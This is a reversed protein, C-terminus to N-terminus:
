KYSIQYHRQRPISVNSPHQQLMPLQLPMSMPLGGGGGGGHSSTAGVNDVIGPRQDYYMPGVSDMMNYMVLNSSSEGYNNGMKTAGFVQNNHPYLLGSQQNFPLIQHYFEQNPDNNNNILPYNFLPFQNVFGEFEHCGMQYNPNMFSSIPTPEFCPVFGKKKTTTMTAEQNCDGGKIVGIRQKILEIKQDLHVVLKMLQEVSFENITSISCPYKTLANKHRLKTLEQDAKRTWEDFMDYLNLSNKNKEENPVRLYRDIIEWAIKPDRISKATEIDEKFSYVEPQQQQQQKGEKYPYIIICVPVNCLISLEQGKKLLGKKRKAFTNNRAKEKSIFEMAIKVRGM